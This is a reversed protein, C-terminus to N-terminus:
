AHQLAPRLCTVPPQSPNPTLMPAVINKGQYKALYLMEDADHLLADRDMGKRLSAVGFSATVTLSRGGIDISMSALRKRLKEAIQTAHYLGTEPLALVFEEGGFRALLDSQRVCAAIAKSVERLVKDGAAHGHTDNIKKFDDLDIMVLSMSREYRQAVAIDTELYKNLARRNYCNTLPDIAAVNELHQIHLANELAVGLSRVITKLIDDQHLVTRRRPLVYLRAIYSNNLVPYSIIDEALIKDPSSGTEQSESGIGHVSFDVKQGIDKAVVSLIVEKHMSPDVWVDHRDGDKLLFGFLEYDLLDKLCNSVDKLISDVSKQQNLQLIFRNLIRYTRGTLLGYLQGVHILINKATQANHKRM